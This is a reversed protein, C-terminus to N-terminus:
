DPRNILPGAFGKRCRVAQAVAQVLADLITPDPQIRTTLGPSLRAIHYDRQHEYATAASFEVILRLYGSM